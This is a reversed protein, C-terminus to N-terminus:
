KAGERRGVNTGVSGSGELARSRGEHGALHGTAAAALADCLRRLRGM